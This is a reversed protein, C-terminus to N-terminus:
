PMGPLFFPSRKLTDIEDPRLYTNPYDYFGLWMLAKSDCSPLGQDCGPPHPLGFAHGGEHGLGGIWRIVPYQPGPPGGCDPVTTEGTLGRLDNAPLLAVGSTGGTTQHCAPDADVYYIWISNPDNFSGGSLSFADKLVSNWFDSSATYYAAPHPLTLTTVLPDAPRFTVGRMQRRYWGQVDQVAQGVASAYAPKAPRDTPVFYYTRVTPGGSSKAVPSVASSGPAHASFHNCSSAAFLLLSSAALALQRTKLAASM